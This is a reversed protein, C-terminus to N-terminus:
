KRAEDLASLAKRIRAFDGCNLPDHESRRHPLCQNLDHIDRLAEPNLFYDPDLYAHAEAFPRAAEVVEAYRQELRRLNDGYASAVDEAGKSRQAARDAEILKEAHTYGDGDGSVAYNIIDCALKEAPVGEAKPAEQAQRRNWQASTRGESYCVQCVIRTCFEAEEEKAEGGCFPCPLLTAKDDM